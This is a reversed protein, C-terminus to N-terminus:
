FLADLQAQACDAPSLGEHFEEFYDCEREFFERVGHSAFLRVCGEVVVDHYAAYESTWSVRREEYTM